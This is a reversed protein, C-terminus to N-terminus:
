GTKSTPSPRGPLRLPDYLASLLANNLLTSTGRANPHPTGYGFAPYHRAPRFPSAPISFGLRACLRFGSVALSSRSGARAANRLAPHGGRPPIRLAHPSTGPWLRHPSGRRHVPRGFTPLTSGATHLRLRESEGVAGLHKRIARYPLVVRSRLLVPPTEPHCRLLCVSLRFAFHRAVSRWYLSPQSPFSSGSM